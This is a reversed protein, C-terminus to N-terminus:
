IRRGEGAVFPGIRHSRQLGALQIPRRHDGVAERQGLRRFHEGRHRGAGDSVALDDKVGSENKITSFKIGQRLFNRWWRTSRCYTYMAATLPELMVAHYVTDPEGALYAEVVLEQVNIDTRNLAELQPPIDDITTPEIGSADILCPVEVTCGEPLNTILGFNPVNGNIKAPRNTEMAEIITSGYEHSRVLSMERTGDILAKFDDAMHAARNQCERLYGGTRSFDFGPTM